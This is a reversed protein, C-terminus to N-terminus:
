PSTGELLRDLVYQGDRPVIRSFGFIEAVLVLSGDSVGGPDRQELVESGFLPTSLHLLCACLRRM